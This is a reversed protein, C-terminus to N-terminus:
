VAVEQQPVLPAPRGQRRAARRRERKSASAILIGDPYFRLQILLGAGILIQLNLGKVGVFALVILAIVAAFSFAIGM